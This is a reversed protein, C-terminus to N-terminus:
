KENYRIEFEEDIWRNTLMEAIATRTQNAFLAVFAADRKQQTVSGEHKLGRKYRYSLGEVRQGDSKMHTSFYGSKLVSDYCQVLETLIEAIGCPHHNGFLWHYATHKYENVRVKNRKSLSPTSVSRPRRHHTSSRATIEIGKVIFPGRKERSQKNTKKTKSQKKKPPITRRASHQRTKSM